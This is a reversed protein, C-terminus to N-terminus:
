GSCSHNSLYLHDRFKSPGGPRHLFNSAKADTNRRKRERDHSRGRRGLSAHIEGVQQLARQLPRYSLDDRQSRRLNGRGVEHFRFVAERRLLPAARRLIEMGFPWFVRLAPWALRNVPSMSSASHLSRRDQEAPSVAHAESPPAPPSRLTSRRPTGTTRSTCACRPSPTHSRPCPNVLAALAQLLPEKLMRLPQEM